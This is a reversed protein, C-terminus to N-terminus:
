FSHQSLVFSVSLLDFNPCAIELLVKRLPPIAAAAPRAALLMGPEWLCEVRDLRAAPQWARVQELVHDEDWLREMIALEAYALSQRITM